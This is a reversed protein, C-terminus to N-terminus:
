SDPSNLFKLKPVAEGPKASFDSKVSKELLTSWSWGPKPVLGMTM